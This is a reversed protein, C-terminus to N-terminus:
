PYCGFGARTCCCLDPDWSGFGCSQPQCSTGDGKGFGGCAQFHIDQTISVSSVIEQAPYPLCADQEAVYYSGTPCLPFNSISENGSSSACCKNESDFNWGDLCQGQNGEGICANGQLMYGAPCSPTGPIDVQCEASISVTGPSQCVFLAPDGSPSCDGSDIVSEPPGTFIVNTTSVKNSCYTVQSIDLVPCTESLGTDQTSVNGNSDLGYVLASECFPAFFAPKEVVCRFGLDQRHDEPNSFYRNSLPIEDLSSAYGSSRVSRTNGTEPGPPNETPSNNYYQPDYWDAVWEFTNGAFDLGGYYSASNLYSVVNTTKGVCNNFNLLDCSPTTDGWPYINGDPGRAAKEWEAETPLRANVFDCYDAAQDYSVGVVPDNMRSPDIYGKNDGPNPPSCKDLVVCLNYQQNTVTTSYVWYSKLMVTHVLNDPGNNGMIFEGAPVAVLLTGDVYPYTAGLEAPPSGLNGTDPIPSGPTSTPTVLTFPEFPKTLEETATQFPSTLLQCALLFM